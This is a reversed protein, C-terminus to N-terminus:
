FGLPRSRECAVGDLGSSKRQNGKLQKQSVEQVHCRIDTADQNFLRELAMAKRHYTWHVCEHIITNRVSGLTRMFFVNPDFFLTGASVPREAFSDETIVRVNTEM